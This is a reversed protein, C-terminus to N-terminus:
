VLEIFKGHFEVLNYGQDALINETGLWRVWGKSIEPFESGKPLIKKFYTRTNHNYFIFEESPYRVKIVVASTM